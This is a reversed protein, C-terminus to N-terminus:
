RGCRASLDALLPDDPRGLARARELSPRALACDGRRVHYRADLFATMLLYARTLPDDLHPALAAWLAALRAESGTAAAAPAPAAAGAPLVAQFPGAPVTRGLLADDFTADDFEVLVPRRAAESGLRAAGLDGPWRLGALLGALGPARRGLNAVYGPQGLYSRHVHDVDPRAGELLRAAWVRFGTQYNSTALLAGPPVAGLGLDTAREAGYAQRLDCPRLSGALAHLPLLLLGAAGLALVLARRRELWALGAALGAGALASVM